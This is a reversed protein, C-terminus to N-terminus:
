GFCFPYPSTVCAPQHTSSSLDAFPASAFAGVLVMSRRQKPSGQRRHQPLESFAPEAFGDKELARDARSHYSLPLANSHREM